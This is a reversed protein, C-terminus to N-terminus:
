PSTNTVQLADTTFLFTNRLDRMVNKGSLPRLHLSNINVEAGRENTPIWGSVTSENPPIKYRLTASLLERIDYLTCVGSM